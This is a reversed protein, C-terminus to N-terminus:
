RTIQEMLKRNKSMKDLETIVSTKSEKLRSELTSVRKETASTTRGAKARQVEKDLDSVTSVFTNLQQLLPQVSPDCIRALREFRKLTDPSTALILKYQEAPIRQNMIIPLFTQGAMMTEQLSTGASLRSPMKGKARMLM